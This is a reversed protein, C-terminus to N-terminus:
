GFKNGIDTNHITIKYLGCGIRLIWNEMVKRIKHTNTLEHVDMFFIVCFSWRLFSSGTTTLDGIEAGTLAWFLVVVTFVLGVDIGELVAIEFVAAEVGLTIVGIVEVM